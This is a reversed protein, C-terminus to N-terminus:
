LKTKKSNILAKFMSVLAILVIVGSGIIALFIKNELGIWLLSFALSCIVCFLTFFANRWPHKPHNNEIQKNKM